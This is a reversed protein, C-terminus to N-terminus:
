RRFLKGPIAVFSKEEDPLENITIKYDLVSRANESSPIFDDSFSSISIM